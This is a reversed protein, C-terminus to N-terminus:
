TNYFNRLVSLHVTGCLKVSREVTFFYSMMESMIETLFCSLFNEGGAAAMLVASCGDSSVANVNVGFNLLERLAPFNGSGAAWLLPTGTVSNAEKDAGAELLTRM